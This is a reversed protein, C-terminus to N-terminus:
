PSLRSWDGAKGNEEGRPDDVSIWSKVLMLQLMLVVLAFAFGVGALINVLKSVPATEEEEEVQFM